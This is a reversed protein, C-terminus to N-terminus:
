NKTLAREKKAQYCDMQLCRETNFIAAKITSTSDTFLLLYMKFGPKLIKSTDTLKSKINTAFGLSIQLYL